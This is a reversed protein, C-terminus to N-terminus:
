LNWIWRALANIRDQGIHAVALDCLQESSFEVGPITVNPGASTSWISLGAEHGKDSRERLEVWARINAAHEEAAEPAPFVNGAELVSIDFKDGSWICHNLDAAAEALWYTEGMEPVWRRRPLLADIDPTPAVAEPEPFLEGPQIGMEEILARAVTIAANRDM